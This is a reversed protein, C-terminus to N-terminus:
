KYSLTTLAQFIDRSIADVAPRISDTASSALPNDFCMAGSIVITSDDTALFQLPTSAGDTRAILVSFGAPNVFETNDTPLSGSNLMLRQMRNQKVGDLTSPTVPTFSVYVVAGLSPYRIDAWGPRDSTVSAAANAMFRVPLGPVARMATDPLALRPYATRRPIAPRSGSERACAFM